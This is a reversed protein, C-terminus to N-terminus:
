AGVQHGADCRGNGRMRVEPAMWPAIHPHELRVFRVDRHCRLRKLRPHQSQRIDKAILQIAVAFHLEDSLGPALRDPGQLGIRRKNEVGVIRDNGLEALVRGTRHDVEAEFVLSDAGCSNGVFGVFSQAM